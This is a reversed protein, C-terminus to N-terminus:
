QLLWDVVTQHGFERAYDLASKDFCNKHEKNVHKSLLLRVIDEQGLAAAVILPTTQNYGMTCPANVDAGADILMTIIDIPMKKSIAYTLVPVVRVAVEKGIFVGKNIVGNPNAGAKILENIIQASGGLLAYGLITTGGRMWHASDLVNVAEGKNILQRVKDLNCEQCAQMLPTFGLVPPLDDQFIKKISETKNAIMQPFLDIHLVNKVLNEISKSIISASQATYGGSLVMAVPIKAEQALTFVFADRAIIGQESISM